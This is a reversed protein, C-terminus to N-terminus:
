CLNFGPEYRYFDLHSHKTKWASRLTAVLILGVFCVLGRGTQGEESTCDQMDAGEDDKLGFFGKEHEDRGKYDHYADISNLNLRHMCSAFYGCQAFARKRTNENSSFFYKGEEERVTLYLLQKQLRRLPPFPVTGNEMNGILREQRQIKQHLRFLDDTRKKRNMHINVKLDDTERSAPLLRQNMLSVCKVM